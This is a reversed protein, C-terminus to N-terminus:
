AHGHPSADYFVRRRMMEERRIKDIMTSVNQVDEIGDVWLIPDSTDTSMIKIRGIGMMREIPGQEFAVDNITILDIPNVKRNLIGEEHFFRHNSLRYRIGIRKILYRVGAFAAILIAVVVPIWWYSHGQTMLYMAGVFLLLDVIGVGIWTGIMARASYHGEWLTKEPADNVQGVTSPRQAALITAPEGSLKAGCKSCFVAAAEVDAGCKPCHM